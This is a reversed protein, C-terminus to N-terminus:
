NVTAVFTWKMFHIFKDLQPSHGDIITNTNFVEANSGYRWYTFSNTQIFEVLMPQNQGERLVIIKM